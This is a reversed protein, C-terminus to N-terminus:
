VRSYHNGLVPNILAFSSVTEIVFQDFRFQIMPCMRIKNNYAHSSVNIQDLNLLYRKRIQFLKDEM